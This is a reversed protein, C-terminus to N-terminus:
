LYQGIIDIDYVYQYTYKTLCIVPSIDISQETKSILESKVTHKGNKNLNFNKKDKM